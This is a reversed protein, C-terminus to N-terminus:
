EVNQVQAGARVGTYADAVQAMMEERALLRALRPRRYRWDKWADDSWDEVQARPAAGAGAVGQEYSAWSSHLWRCATGGPRTM